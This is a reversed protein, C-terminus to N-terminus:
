GCCAFMASLHGCARYSTAEGSAELGETTRRCKYCCMGSLAFELLRCSKLHSTCSWVYLVCWDWSTGSHQTHLTCTGIHPMCSQYDCTKRDPRLPVTSGLSREPDKDQMKMKAKYRQVEYVVEGPKRAYMFPYLCPIQAHSSGARCGRV